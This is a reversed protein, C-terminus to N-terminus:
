GKEAGEVTDTAEERGERTDITPTLPQRRHSIRLHHSRSRRSKRRKQEKQKETPSEEQPEEKKEIEKGAEPHRPAKRKGKAVKGHGTEKSRERPERRHHPSEMTAKPDEFKETAGKRRDRDGTNDAAEAGM